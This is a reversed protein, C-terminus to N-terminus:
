LQDASTLRTSVLHKLKRLSPQQKSAVNTAAIHSFARSEPTGSFVYRESLALAEQGRLMFALQYLKSVNKFAM